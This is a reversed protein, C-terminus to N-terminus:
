KANPVQRWILPDHAARALAECLINFTLVCIRITTILPEMNERKTEIQIELSGDSLEIVRVATKHGEASLGFWRTRHVTENGLEATLASGGCAAENTTQQDNM